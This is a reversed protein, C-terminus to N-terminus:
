MCAPKAISLTWKEVQLTGKKPVISGKAAVIGDKATHLADRQLVFAGKLARSPGLRAPLAYSIVRLAITDLTAEAVPGLRPKLRARSPGLRGKLARFVFRPPLM